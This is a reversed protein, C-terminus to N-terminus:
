LSVVVLRRAPRVVAAHNDHWQNRTRHGPKCLVPLRQLAAITARYTLAVRSASARRARNLIMGIILQAPFWCAVRCAM